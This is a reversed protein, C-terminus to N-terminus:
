GQRKVYELRIENVGTKLPIRGNEIKNGKKLRSGRVQRVNGIHTYASLALFSTVIFVKTLM